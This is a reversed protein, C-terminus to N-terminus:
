DRGRFYLQNGECRFYDYNTADSTQGYHRIAGQVLQRCLFQHAKKRSNEKKWVINRTRM